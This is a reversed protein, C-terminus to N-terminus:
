SWWAPRDDPALTCNRRLHGTAWQPRTQGERTWVNHGIEYSPADGWPEKGYEATGDNKVIRKMDVDLSNAYLTGLHNVLNLVDCPNGCRYAQVFIEFFTEEYILPCCEFTPPLPKKPYTNFRRLPFWQFKTISTKYKKKLEEPVPITSFHQINIVNEPSLNNLSALNTLVSLMEVEFKDLFTSRANGSLAPKMYPPKSILKSECEVWFNGMSNRGPNSGSNNKTECNNTAVLERTLPELLRIMCGDRRAEMGWAICMEGCYTQRAPICNGTVRTQAGSLTVEAFSEVSIGYFRCNEITGSFEVRSHSASLGIHCDSIHCDTMRVDFCERIPLSSGVKMGHFLSHTISIKKLVVIGKASRKRGGVAIAAAAAAATAKALASAHIERKKVADRGMQSGFATGFANGFTNGFTNGFPLGTTDGATSGTFSSQSQKKNAVSSLTQSSISFGGRVITDAGKGVFTMPMDVHIFNKPECDDDADYPHWSSDGIIHSGNDIRVLTPGKTPNEQRIKCIHHVFRGLDKFRAHPFSTWLPAPILTRFFPCVTRLDVCHDDDECLYNFVIRWFAIWFYDGPVIMRSLFTESHHAANNKPNDM